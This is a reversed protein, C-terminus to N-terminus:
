LAGGSLMRFESALADLASSNGSILALRMEHLVWSLCPARDGARRALRSLFLYDSSDGIAVPVTPTTPQSPM